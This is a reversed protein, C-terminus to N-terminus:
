LQLIKLKAYQLLPWYLCSLKLYKHSLKGPPFLNQTLDWPSALWPYFPRVRTHWKFVPVNFWGFNSTLKQTRRVFWVPWWSFRGCVWHKTTNQVSWWLNKINGMVTCYREQFLIFYNRWIRWHPVYLIHNEAKLNGVFIFTPLLEFDLM